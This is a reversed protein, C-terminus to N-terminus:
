TRGPGPRLAEQIDRHWRRVVDAVEVVESLVGALYTAANVCEKCEEPKEAKCKKLHLIAEIIPKALHVLAM